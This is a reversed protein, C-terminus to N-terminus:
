DQQQSLLFILKNKVEKFSNLKDKTKLSMAEIVKLWSKLPYNIKELASKIDKVYKDVFAECREIGGGLYFKILLAKEVNEDINEIINGDSIWPYFHSPQQKRIDEIIDLVDDQLTLYMIFSKMMDDFQQTLEEKKTIYLVMDTVLLHLISKGVAYKTFEVEDICILPSIEKERLMLNIYEGFRRNYIVYFSDTETFIRSLINNIELDIIQLYYGLCEKRLGGMNRSILQEYQEDAFLDTIITRRAILTSIIGVYRIKQLYQTKDCTDCIFLFPMFYYFPYLNLPDFLAELEKLPYKKSIKKMSRFYFLIDTYNIVDRNCNIIDMTDNFYRRKHLNNFFESPM